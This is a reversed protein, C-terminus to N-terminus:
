IHFECCLIEIRYRQYAHHSVVCAGVNDALNDSGGAYDRNRSSAAGDHGHEINPLYDHGYKTVVMDIRTIDANPSSHVYKWGGEPLREPSQVHITILLGQSCQPDPTASPHLHHHHHHHYYHHLHRHHHHHHNIGGGGRCLCCSLHNSWSPSSHRAEWNGLFNTAVQSRRMSEPNKHFCQFEWIKCPFGM